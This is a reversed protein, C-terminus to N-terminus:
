SFDQCRELQIVLEEAKALNVRLLDRATRAHKLAQSVDAQFPVFDVALRVGHMFQHISGADDRIDSVQEIIQTHQPATM